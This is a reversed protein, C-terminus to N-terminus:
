DAWPLWDFRPNQPITCNSLLLKEKNSDLEQLLSYRCKGFIVKQVKLSIVLSDVDVHHGWCKIVKWLCLPSTCVHRSVQVDTQTWKQSNRRKGGDLRCASHALDAQIWIARGVPFGPPPVALLRYSSSPSLLMYTFLPGSGLCSWWWSWWFKERIM